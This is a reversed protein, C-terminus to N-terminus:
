YITQIKNEFSLMITRIRISDAISKVALASLRRFNLKIPKDRKM